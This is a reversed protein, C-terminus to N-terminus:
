FSKDKLTRKLYRVTRCREEKARIAIYPELLKFLGFMKGHATHKVLTGEDTSELRYGPTSAMVNFRSWRLENRFTVLTPRQFQIVEGKYVGIRTKDIFTTGLSVPGDSTQKCEIFVRSEPLWRNYDDIDILRDFVIDIPRAITEKFDIKIM